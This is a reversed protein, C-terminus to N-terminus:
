ATFWGSRWLILIYLLFIAILTSKESKIAKSYDGSVEESSLNKNLPNPIWRPVKKLYEEFETGFNTKLISEEWFIILYYQLFFFFIFIASFYYPANPTLDHQVNSAIIAGLSLLLNGIYLPNRVKSFPGGTILKQGTSFTRTRSVGGIYAVGHIRIIEGIISLCVGILLSELTVNAYIVVIVVFPIPTYDRLKFLFEGIKLM